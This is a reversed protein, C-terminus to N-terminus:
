RKMPEWWIQRWTLRTKVRNGLIPSAMQNRECWKWVMLYHEPYPRVYMRSYLTGTGGYDCGYERIM